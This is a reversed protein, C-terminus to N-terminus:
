VLWSQTQNILLFAIDSLGAASVSKACVRLKIVNRQYSVGKIENM